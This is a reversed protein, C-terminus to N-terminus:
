NVMLKKYPHEIGNKDIMSLILEEKEIASDSFTIASNFQEILDSEVIEKSTYIDAIHDGKKVTDGVKKHLIFGASFDISDTIQERGAGIKVGLLGIKLANM